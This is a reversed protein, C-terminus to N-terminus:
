NTQQNTQKNTQKETRESTHKDTQKDARKDTQENSRRDTPKNAQSHYILVFLGQQITSAVVNGANIILHLQRLWGSSGLRSLWTSTSSDSDM